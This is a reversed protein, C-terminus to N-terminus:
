AGRASGPMFALRWTWPETRASSWPGWRSSHIRDVVAEWPIGVTEREHDLEDLKRDLEARQWGTLPVDRASWFLSEWVQELLHPREDVTLSDVDIEALRTRLNECRSDPLM